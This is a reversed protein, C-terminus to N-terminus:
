KHTPNWLNDKIYRSLQTGDSDHLFFAGCRTSKSKDVPSVCTIPTNHHRTAESLRHVFTHHLAHSDSTFIMDRICSRDHILAQLGGAVSTTTSPPNPATDSNEGESNTSGGEEDDVVLIKCTSRGNTEGHMRDCWARHSPSFTNTSVTVFVDTHPMRQLARILTPFNRHPIADDNTSTMTSSLVLGAISAFCKPPLPTKLDIQYSQHPHPPSYTVKSSTLYHYSTHIIYINLFCAYMLVVVLAVDFRNMTRPPSATCTSSNPSTQCISEFM